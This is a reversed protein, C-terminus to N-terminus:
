EKEYNLTKYNREEANWVFDACSKRLVISLQKSFKKKEGFVVECVHIKEILLSM